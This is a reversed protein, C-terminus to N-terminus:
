SREIRTLMRQKERRSEFKHARQRLLQIEVNLESL